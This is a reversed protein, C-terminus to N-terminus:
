TLKGLIKQVDLKMEYLDRAVDNMQKQVSGVAGKVSEVQGEVGDVDLLTVNMEINSVDDAMSEIQDSIKELFGEREEPTAAALGLVRFVPSHYQFSKRGVVKVIKQLEIKCAEISAVDTLDFVVTREDKLDFPIRENRDILHVAIKNFSHRVDLEYVVNANLGTLDAIVLDAAYFLQIVQHTISGPNSLEDARVVKFKSRLVENLM